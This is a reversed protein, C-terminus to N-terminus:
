KKIYSDPLQCAFEYFRVPVRIVEFLCQQILVAEDGAMPSEKKDVKELRFLKVM